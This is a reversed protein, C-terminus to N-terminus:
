AYGHVEAQAGSHLAAGLRASVDPELSPTRRVAEGLTSRAEQAQGMDLYALGLVYHLSGDSPEAAALHSRLEAAARDSHGSRTLAIARGLMANEQSPDRRLISGALRAAKRYAGQELAQEVSAFAPKRVRRAVLYGAAALAAMVVSAIAVTAPAQADVITGGPSSSAIPSVLVADNTPMLGFPTGAPLTLPEDDANISTGKVQLTGTAGLLHLAGEPQFSMESAGVLVVASGGETALNLAGKTIVMRVFREHNTQQQSDLPGAGPLDMTTTTRGDLEWTGTANSLEGLAGTFEVIMYGSALGLAPHSTASHLLLPGPLTRRAFEDPASQSTPNVDPRTSGMRGPEVFIEDAQVTVSSGSEIWLAGNVPSFVHIEFEPSQAVIRFSAASAKFQQAVPERGDNYLYIPDPALGLPDPVHGTDQEVRHYALAEMHAADITFTLGAGTAEERVFLISGDGTAATSDDTGVADATLGGPRAAGAGSALVLCAVVFGSLASAARRPAIM